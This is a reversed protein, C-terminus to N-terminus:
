YDDEETKTSEVFYENLQECMITLNSAKYFFKSLEDIRKKSLCYCDWYLNKYEDTHNECLPFPHQFKSTYELLVIPRKCQVGNHKGCCLAMRFLTPLITM